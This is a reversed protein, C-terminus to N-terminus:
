KGRTEKRKCAKTKETGWKEREGGTRVAFM